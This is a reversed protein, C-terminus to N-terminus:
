NSVTQPQLQNKGQVPIPILLPFLQVHYLTIRVFTLFIFHILVIKSALKCFANLPLPLKYAFTLTVFYGTQLTFLHALLPQLQEVFFLSYATVLKIVISM